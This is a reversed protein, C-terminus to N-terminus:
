EGIMRMIDDVDQTAAPPRLRPANTPPRARSAPAAATEVPKTGGNRWEDYRRLGEMALDMPPIAFTPLDGLNPVGDAFVFHGASVFYLATGIEWIRRELGWRAAEAPLLGAAVLLGRQEECTTVQREGERDLTGARSLVRGLREFLVNSEAGVVLGRHVYLVRVVDEQLTLFAGDYKQNHAFALLDAAIRGSFRGGSSIRYRGDDGLRPVSSGLVRTLLAELSEPLLRDFVIHAETSVPHTERDAM